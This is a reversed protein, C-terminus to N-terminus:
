HRRGRPPRKINNQTRNNNRHRPPQNNAQAKSAARRSARQAAFLDDLMAKMENGKDKRAEKVEAPTLYGPKTLRYALYGGLVGYAFDIPDSTSKPGYGVNEAVVNAGVAITGAAVAAVNKVQKFKEPTALRPSKGWVENLAVSILFITVATNGIHDPVDFPEPLKDRIDPVSEHLLTGARVASTVALPAMWLADIKRMGGGLPMIVGQNSEPKPPM